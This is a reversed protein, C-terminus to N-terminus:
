DSVHIGRTQPVQSMESMLKLSKNKSDIKNDKSINIMNIYLRKQVLLEM